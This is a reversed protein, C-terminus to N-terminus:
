QNKQEKYVKRLLFAPIIFAILTSLALILYQEAGDIFTIVISLIFCGIGGYILPKFEIIKGSTYTGIGYFLIFIALSYFSLQYSIFTLIFFSIGLATWLANLALTSYTLHKNQQKQKISYVIHIIAVVPMALWVMQSHPLLIKLLIYQLISCIFVAFGWLLYFFSKDSLEEKTKLMMQEITAIQKALDQEEM